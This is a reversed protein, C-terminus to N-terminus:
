LKAINTEVCEFNSDIFIDELKCNDRLSMRFINLHFSSIRMLILAFERTYFVSIRDIRTHTHTEVYFAIVILHLIITNIFHPLM